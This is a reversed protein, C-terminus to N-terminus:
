MSSMTIRDTLALRWPLKKPKSHSCMRELRYKGSWQRTKGWPHSALAHMGPCCGKPSRQCGQSCGMGGRNRRDGRSPDRSHVYREKRCGRGTSKDNPQRPGRGVPGPAEPPAALPEWGLRELPEVEVPQEASEASRDRRCSPASKLGNVSDLGMLTSWWSFWSQGPM